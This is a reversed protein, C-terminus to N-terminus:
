VIGNQFQVLWRAVPKCAVHSFCTQGVVGNSAVTPARYAASRMRILILRKCISRQFDQDVLSDVYRPEPVIVQEVCPLRQQM